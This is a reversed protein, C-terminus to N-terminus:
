GIISFAARPKVGNARAAYGKLRLHPLHQKNVYGQEVAEDFVYQM